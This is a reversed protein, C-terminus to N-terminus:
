KKRKLIVAHGSDPDGLTFILGYPPKDGTLNAPHFRSNSTQLRVGWIHKRGPDLTGLIDKQWQGTGSILSAFFNTSPAEIAWPPVNTAAFTGDARLEVVVDPHASGAEPPLHFLDLIYTGVVDQTKPESTTYLHAHPDYQCGNLVLAALILFLNRMAVPYRGLSRSVTRNCDSRSAASRLPSPNLWAAM